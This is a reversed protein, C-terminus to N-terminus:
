DWLFSLDVSGCAFIDSIRKWWWALRTLQLSQLLPIQIYTEDLFLSPTLFTAMSNVHNYAFCVDNLFVVLLILMMM